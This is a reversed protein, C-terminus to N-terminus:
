AARARLWLHLSVTCYQIKIKQSVKRDRCKLIFSQQKYQVPQKKLIKHQQWTFFFGTDWNKKVEHVMLFVMTKVQCIQKKPHKKIVSNYIIKKFTCFCIFRWYTSQLHLIKGSLLSNILPIGCPATQRNNKM